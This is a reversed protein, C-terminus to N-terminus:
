KLSDYVAKIQEYSKSHRKYLSALEPEGPHADKMMGISDLQFKAERCRHLLIELFEDKQAASPSLGQLGPIVNELEKVSTEFIPLADALPPLGNM